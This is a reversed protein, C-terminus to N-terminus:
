GCVTKGGGQYCSKGGPGEALLGGWYIYLMMERGCGGGGVANQGEM